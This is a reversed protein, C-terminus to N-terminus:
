RSSSRSAWRNMVAVTPSDFVVAVRGGRRGRRPLDGRRAAAPTPHERERTGFARDAALVLVLLLYPMIPAVQAITVTLHRCARQRPGSALAQPGGSVLAVAPRVIGILLSAV